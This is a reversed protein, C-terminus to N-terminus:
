FGLAVLVPLDTCFRLLLVGRRSQFCTNHITSLRSSTIQMATPKMRGITDPECHPTGHARGALPRDDHLLEVMNRHMLPCM